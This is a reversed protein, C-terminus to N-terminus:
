LNMLRTCSICNSLDNDFGYGDECRECRSSNLLCDICNSQCQVCKGTNQGNQDYYFGFRDDCIQCSNVDTNCQKCNM